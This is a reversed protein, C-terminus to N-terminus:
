IFFITNHVGRPPAFEVGLPPQRRWYMKLSGEDTSM